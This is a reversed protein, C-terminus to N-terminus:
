RYFPKTTIQRLLHYYFSCSNELLVEILRGGKLRGNKLSGCWKLTELSCYKIGRNFRWGRNLPWNEFDWPHDLVVIGERCLSRLPSLIHLPAFLPTRSIIPKINKKEADLQWPLVFYVEAFSKSSTLCCCYLYEDTVSQSIPLKLYLRKRPSPSPVVRTSQTLPQRKRAM